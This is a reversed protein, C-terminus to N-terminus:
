VRFNRFFQSLFTVKFFEPLNEQIGAKAPIVIFCGGADNLCLASDLSFLSSGIM